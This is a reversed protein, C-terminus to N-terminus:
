PEDPFFTYVEESACGSPIKEIGKPLRAYQSGGGSVRDGVTIRGLKPVEITLPDDSVVKTGHPWLITGAEIGLCSGAMTVSGGLGVGAVNDDAGMPAVLVYSDGTDIIAAEGESGSCGTVWVLATLAAVARIGVTLAM